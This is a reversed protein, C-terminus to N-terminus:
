LAIAWATVLSATVHVGIELYAGTVVGSFYRETQIKLSTGIATKTLLPRCRM